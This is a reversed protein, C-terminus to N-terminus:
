FGLAKRKRLSRARKVKARGKTAKRKRSAKKQSLQRSRKEKSKIRVKKGDVLKIDTRARVKKRRQVQGGRVRNVRKVSREMIEQAVEEM